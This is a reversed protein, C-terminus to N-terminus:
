AKRFLGSPKAIPARSGIRYPEKIDRSGSLNIGRESKSTEDLIGREAVISSEVFCGEGQFDRGSSSIGFDSIGEISCFWTGAM